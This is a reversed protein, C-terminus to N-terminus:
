FFYHSELLNEISALRIEVSSMHPHRFLTTSLFRSSSRLTKLTATCHPEAARGENAWALVMAPFARLRNTDQRLELRAVCAPQLLIPVKAGRQNCDMFLDGHQLRQAFISSERM